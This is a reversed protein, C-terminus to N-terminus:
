TFSHDSAALDSLFRNINQVITEHDNIDQLKQYLEYPFADSQMDFGLRIKSKNAKYWETLLRKQQKNLSRLKKM